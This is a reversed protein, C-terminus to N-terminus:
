LQLLNVEAAGLGLALGYFGPEQSPDCLNLDRLLNYFRQVGLINLLYVTPVNFSSALAERLRTPGHYRDGYNRPAFFTGDDLRFELITDPLVFSAPFGSELGLIYLFPKIASGPQRLALCGNVQGGREDFYSRSGVMALVEGTNVDMVIIAGQNVNYSQLSNLTTALLKELDQQLYLDLSTYLNSSNRLPSREVETLIYDIFQPADFNFPRPLINLSEARACLYSLTDIKRNQLLCDLIKEKNRLCAEPNIYPNLLSPSKPISALICAEGLSLDRAPKRFYFNAAAEIGYTQNGYPMRNLYIELIESKSLHLELKISFLIEIFKSWISKRRLGMAVKVVQMTITSGGSVIRGYKINEYFARLLALPDVGPHYFFRKDEELITATIIHPSMEKIKVWQSTKYDKSLITRLPKGRRDYINISSFRPYLSNEAPPVFFFIVIALSILLLLYGIRFKPGPQPLRIM